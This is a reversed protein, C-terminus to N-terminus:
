RNFAKGESYGMLSCVSQAHETLWADSNSTVCIEGQNEDLSLELWGFNASGYRLYLEFDYEKNATLFLLVCKQQLM